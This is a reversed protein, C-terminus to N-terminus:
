ELGMRAREDLLEGLRKSTRPNWGFAQRWVIDSEMCLYVFVDPARRKIWRYMARFMRVRAPRFYRLKGDLGPVLEAQPLDSHPHRKRILNDLVPPYRLAGLSIWAIREASVTDFIADVVERYGKEWGEHEILPDFHFGLRYGADQVKRAAELRAEVPPADGEESAAVSDTNLSWSVIVRGRPNLDLFQDVHTTKTKLELIANNQQAFFPILERSQLAVPDFTLSDTLEGTGIRFFQEPHATLAEEVETLADELNVYVTLLPNNLYGQLICYTCGVDCGTQINLVRYLCCIHRQTGPCFKLFKGPFVALLLDPKGSPPPSQRARERLFDQLDDVFIVDPGELREPSRDRRRLHDLFGDRLRLRDLVLRTRLNSEARKEIFIREPRLVSDPLPAVSPRNPGAGQRDPARTM